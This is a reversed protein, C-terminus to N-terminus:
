VFKINTLYPKMNYNDLDIMYSVLSDHATSAIVMYKARGNEAVYEKLYYTGFPIELIRALDSNVDIKINQMSNAKM